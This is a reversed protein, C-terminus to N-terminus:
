VGKATKATKPKVIGQLGRGAQTQAFVALAQIRRTNRTKKPLNATKAPVRVVALNPSQSEGLGGLGGTHSSTPDKPGSHGPLEWRWPGAGAKIAKVGLRPKAREITRWAIGAQKADSSIEKSDMPGSALLTRLWDMAEDLESREQPDGAPAM